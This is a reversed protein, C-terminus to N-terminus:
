EDQKGHESRELEHVFNKLKEDPISSIHLDCFNNRSVIHRSSTTNKENSRGFGRIFDKLKEDIISFSHLGCSGTPSVLYEGNSEPLRETVPIWQSKNETKLRNNESVLSEITDIASTTVDWLTEENGNEDRYVVVGDFPQFRVCDLRKVLDEMIEESWWGCKEQDCWTKTIPCITM